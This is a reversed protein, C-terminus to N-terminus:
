ALAAKSCGILANSSDLVTLFMGKVSTKSNSGDINMTDSIGTVWFGNLLFFPATVETLTTGGTASCTSALQLTYKKNAMDAGNLYIKYKSNGLTGPNQHFEVSGEVTLGSTADKELVGSVSMFASHTILVRSGAFPYTPYAPQYVPLSLPALFLLSLMNNTQHDTTFQGM